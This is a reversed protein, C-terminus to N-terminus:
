PKNRVVAPGKFQVSWDRNVVGVVSFVKFKGNCGMDTRAEARFAAKRGTGKSLFRFQFVFPKNTMSFKDTELEKWPSDKWYAARPSCRPATKPDNCCSHSPSWGKSSPPFRKPLIKEDDGYHDAQFYSRARLKIYDLFEFADKMQAAENSMYGKSSLFRKPAIDKGGFLELFRTYEVCGGIEDVGVAHVNKWPITELCKIQKVTLKMCESVVSPFAKAARASWSEIQAIHQETQKIAEKTEPDDLSVGAMKAMEEIQVRERRKAKLTPALRKALHSNWSKAIKECLPKTATPTQTPAGGGPDVCRRDRCIRDGKCDTDKTCGDNRQCAVLISCALVVSGNRCINEIM